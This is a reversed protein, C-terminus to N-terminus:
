VFANEKWSHEQITVQKNAFNQVAFQIGISNFLKRVSVTSMVGTSRLKDAIVPCVNMMAWLGVFPLASYLSNQFWCCMVNNIVLDCVVM